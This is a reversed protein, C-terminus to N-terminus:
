KSSDTAMCAIRATEEMVSDPFIPSFTPYISPENWSRLVSGNARYRVYSLTASTKKDCDVSYLIVAERAEETAVNSFDIKSWLRVRAGERVMSSGDIYIVSGDKSKTIETWKAADAATSTILAM